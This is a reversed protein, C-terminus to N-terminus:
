RETEGESVMRELNRAHHSGDSLQSLDPEHKAAELEELQRARLHARIERHTALARSFFKSAGILAAATLCVGATAYTGWHHTAHFYKAILYIIEAAAGLCALMGVLFYSRTRYATRALMSMQRIRAISLEAEETTGDTEPNAASGDADQAVPQFFQTGCHPCILIPGSTGAGDVMLGCQPCLYQQPGPPQPEPPVDALTPDM